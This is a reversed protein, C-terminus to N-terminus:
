RLGVRQELAEVRTRLSEHRDASMTRWGRLLASLTRVELRVAETRDDVAHVLVGHGEAVASIQHEIGDMRLGLHRIAEEHSDLRRNVQAFQEQAEQRIAELYAKLEPDM